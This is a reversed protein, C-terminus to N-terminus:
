LLSLKSWSRLYFIIAQSLRCYLLMDYSFIINKTIRSLSISSAYRWIIDSDLGYAFETIGNSILLIKDLWYTLM